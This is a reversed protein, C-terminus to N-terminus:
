LAKAKKLLADLRVCTQETVGGSGADAMVDGFESALDGMEDPKSSMKQQMVVSFEQAKANATANTCAALAVAPALLVFLAAAVGITQVRM